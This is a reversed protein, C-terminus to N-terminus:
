TLRCPPRGFSLGQGNVCTKCVEVDLSMWFCGSMSPFCVVHFVCFILLFLLGSLFSLASYSFFTRLLFLLITSMFCSHSAIFMKESFFSTSNYVLHCVNKFLLNCILHSFGGLSYSEGWGEFLNILSLIPSFLVIFTKTWLVVDLQYIGSLVLSAFIFKDFYHNLFIEWCQVYTNLNFTDLLVSLLLVVVVFLPLQFKLISIFVRFIGLPFFFCTVSLLILFWLLLLFRLTIDPLSARLKQPITLNYLIQGLSIGLQIYVLLFVCVIISICHLM